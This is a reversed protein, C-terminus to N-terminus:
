FYLWADRENTRWVKIRIYIIILNYLNTKDNKEKYISSVENFFITSIYKCIILQVVCIEQKKEQSIIKDDQIKDM